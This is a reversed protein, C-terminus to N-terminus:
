RADAFTDDILADFSHPLRGENDAHERLFHVYYRWEDVRDPHEGGRASVLEELEYITWGDYGAPV